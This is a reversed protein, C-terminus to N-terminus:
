IEGTALLRIGDNVRLLRFLADGTLDAADVINGQEYANRVPMLKVQLLRGPEEILLAIIGEASM